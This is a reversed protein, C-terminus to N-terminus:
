QGGGPSLRSTQIELKNRITGPSVRLADAVEAVTYFLTM